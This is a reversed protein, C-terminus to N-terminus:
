SHWSSFGEFFSRQLLDFTASAETELPLIYLWKKWCVINFKSSKLALSHIAITSLSTLDIKDIYHKLHIDTINKCICSSQLAKLIKCLDSSIEADIRICRMPARNGEFDYGLKSQMVRITAIQACTLFLLLLDDDEDDFTRQLLCHFKEDDFFTPLAVSILLKVVASATYAPCREFNNELIKTFTLLKQHEQKSISKSTHSQCWWRRGNGTCNFRTNKPCGVFFLFTTPIGPFTSNHLISVYEDITKKKNANEVQLIIGLFAVVDNRKAMDNIAFSLELSLDLLNDVDDDEQLKCQILLCKCERAIRTDLQESIIINERLLLKTCNNNETETMTTALVVARGTQVSSFLQRPVNASKHVKDTSLFAVNVRMGSEREEDHESFSEIDTIEAFSVASNFNLFGM